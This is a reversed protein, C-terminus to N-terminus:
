GYAHGQVIGAATIDTDSGSPSGAGLLYGAEVWQMMKKWLGGSLLEENSLKCIFGSGGTLEMLGDHVFGGEIVDYSGYQKAYAKELIAPWLEGNTKSSAFSLGSGRHPLRDDVIVRRFRGERHFQLVYFGYKATDGRVIVNKMLEPKTALVSFASLLWCDGVCCLFSRVIGTNTTKNHFHFM